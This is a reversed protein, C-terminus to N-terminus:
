AQRWTVCGDARYEVVMSMTSQTAPNWIVEDKTVLIKHHSEM